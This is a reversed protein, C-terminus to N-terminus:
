VSGKRRGPQFRQRHARGHDRQYELLERLADNVQKRIEAYDM